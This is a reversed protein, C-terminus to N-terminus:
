RRQRELSAVTKLSEMIPTIETTRVRSLKLASRHENIIETVENNALESSNLAGMLTLAIPGTQAASSGRNALGDALHNALTQISAITPVRPVNVVGMLAKKIATTENVTVPSGMRVHELSTKLRLFARTQPDIQSHNATTRYTHYTRHYAHGSSHGYYPRVAHYVPTSTQTTTIHSPRAPAPNTHHHLASTGAQHPQQAAKQQNQLAKQEMEAYKKQARMQEQMMRNQQEVMKKEAEAQRKMEAEAAKRQHELARQVAKEDPGALAPVMVLPGTVFWAVLSIAVFKM